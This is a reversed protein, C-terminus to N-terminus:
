SLMIQDTEKSPNKWM